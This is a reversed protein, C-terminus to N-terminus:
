GRPAPQEGRAWGNLITTSYGEASERASDPSPRAAPAPVPDVMVRVQVTRLNGTYDTARLYLDHEGGAVGSADWRGRYTTTTLPDLSLPKWVGTTSDVQFEVSRVGSGTPGDDAQAAIEVQGNHASGAAPHVFSVNPASSYLGLAAAVLHAGVLSLIGVSPAWTTWLAPKGTWPITHAM